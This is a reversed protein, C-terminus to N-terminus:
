IARLKLNRSPKWQPAFNEGAVFVHKIILYELASSHEFMAESQSVARTGVM